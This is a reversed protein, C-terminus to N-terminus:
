GGGSRTLISALSLSVSLIVWVAFLLPWRAGKRWLDVGLWVAGVAMPGLTMAMSAFFLGDSLSM